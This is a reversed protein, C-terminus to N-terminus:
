DGTQRSVSKRQVLPDAAMALSEGQQSPWAQTAKVIRAQLRRVQRRVDAWSIGDWTVGSSACAWTAADM